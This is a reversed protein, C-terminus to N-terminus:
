ITLFFKLDSKATGVVRARLINARYWADICLLLLSPLTIDLTMQPPFLCSFLDMMKENCLCCGGITFFALFVYVQGFGDM